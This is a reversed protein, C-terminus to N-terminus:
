QKKAALERVEGDGLFRAKLRIRSAGRRRDLLLIEKGPSLDKGGEVHFEEDALNRSIFPGRIPLLHEAWLNFGAGTTKADPGASLYLRYPRRHSVELFMPTIAHLPGQPGGSFIGSLQFHSSALAESISVTAPMATLIIYGEKRYASARNEAIGEDQAILSPWESPLIEGREAKGDIDTELFAELYGGRYKFVWAELVNAGFFGLKGAGELAKRLDDVKEISYRGGSESGDKPSEKGEESSSNTPQSAAAGFHIRGTAALGVVSAVVCLLLGTLALHIRSFM